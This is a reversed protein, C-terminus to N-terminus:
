GLFELGYGKRRYYKKTEEFAFLLVTGSFAFLYVHWPVPAFFYIRALPTYFFLYCLVLEFLIGLDILPNSVFNFLIPHRELFAALRRALPVILPRELKVLLQSLALCLCRFPFLALEGALAFFACAANPEAGGRVHYEIKIRATYRPPRWAAIAALAERRRLPHLFNTSFLSSKWSRKCLVNAIQTTVTPFFYATLTQLYAPSAEELRLGPPSPPMSALSEGPRWVGLVWGMYYYTAYCSLALLTGQVFYSQLIFPLSLLREDRRRPPREMIGEEPPEIGLGMAPILDTGVDVALVGMVTMALPMGPFLVWFIYPYMEQPNSNLVYAAFRKINDFIARGEEVAAVISTFNDDTLIMHAAERAVENGRLGMAIGIDAKKLAPADNVGDGTVAVIEGMQKLTSVIRLKHEPAVRAFIAEGKELIARLRADDMESIEAGTYSPPSREGGLGIQRAISAATLAYDGTIMIVRIGATHCARIAAPVEPRVPDSLGVLGLFVLRTEVEASEYSAGALESAERYAFALVRLGRNAMTDNEELIRGRDAETLPRVEGNWSIRDCRELTELPAGKVYVVPEGRHHPRVVVSMRRRISEFPNVHIRQHVGRLGAKEALCVLAGETPDGVVRYETGRRELRANNCMFACDLLRRLSEWRSVDERSLKRGDVTLDGEPRYGTGSVRVTKGDVAVETAMMLNQTLTGTKDCCIVTTCGLTEVSPLSKVLAHRRAMRQVGMALALTVTPLLGEPVNAVFIGIFFVFAEIFSLGAVFWGLFLFGLGLTGALAAISYVTGRLQNQLPSRETRIERTLHAIKGIESSMGTGFVVARARGRVLATGAFVINPLEIWLFRGPILVPKDSKYRRAPTSEGTLSSNDVEVEFAEVLRSDAPVLDGEELTILDGPVLEASDVEILEGGRIVRCKHAIMQQLMEVARDSRYEQFFAFLGNIVIVALIAVGLQPLDVGPLFCLSAAIWLLVAFFSFLNRVLKLQWPDRRGRPLVNPGYRALRRRAEEPSLGAALDTQLEFAIQEQSLNLYTPLASRQEARAIIQLVRRADRQALLEDRIAPLLSSIRQLLQLHQATQAAPSAFLLVAHVRHENFSLGQPSLGLILEPAALGEIRLHPVAVGQGIYSYRENLRDRAQLHFQTALDPVSSRRCLRDIADAMSGTLGFVIKEPQLREAIM